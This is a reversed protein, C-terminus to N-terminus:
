AASSPLSGGSLERDRRVLREYDEKKVTFHLENTAGAVMRAFEGSLLPVLRSSDFRQEGSYMGLIGLIENRTAQDRRPRYGLPHREASNGDQILILQIPEARQRLDDQQAKRISRAKKWTFGAFLLTGLSIVDSINGIRGLIQELNAM